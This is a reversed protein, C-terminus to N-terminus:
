KELLDEIQCGLAKALRYVSEVQARNIDKNRQEYMQISRLSVGSLEALQKQSCGYAMRVRKLKTEPYRERIRTDLVEAFKSVDAEHLTPYLSLMEELSVAQFIEAYRLIRKASFGALLASGVFIGEAIKGSTDKGTNGRCRDNGAKQCM